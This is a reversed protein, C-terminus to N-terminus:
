CQRSLWEFEEKKKYLERTSKVLQTPPHLSCTSGHENIHWEEFIMAVTKEVFKCTGGVDFSFAWGYWQWLLLRLQLTKQNIIEWIDEIPSKSQIKHSPLTLKKIYYKLSKKVLQCAHHHNVEKTYMMPCSCAHWITCNRPPRSRSWIYCAYIYQLHQHVLIQEYNTGQNFIFGRWM